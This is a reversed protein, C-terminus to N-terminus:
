QRAIQLRSYESLARRVIRRLNRVRREARATEEAIIRHRQRRSNRRVVERVLLDVARKWRAYAIAVALDFTETMFLGRRILCLAGDAPHKKGLPIPLPEVPGPASTAVMKELSVDPPGLRHDLVAFRPDTPAMRGERERWFEYHLSPSVVWGTAGVTGIREGRRVRQGVRAEIRALHGFLTAQGGGHSLIVLNGYRWLRSDPRARVQGAYAVTGDAPAVVTSGAPTALELGTFFEEAGTWPSVRPGFVAAPEFLESALPLISPTAPPLRPDAAEKESILILGRDLALLFRPLGAASAEPAGAALVGAEPNLERPWTSPSLRYLFAIRAILSAADRARTALAAARGEAM